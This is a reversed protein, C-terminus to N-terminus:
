LKDERAMSLARDYAASKDFVSTQLASWGGLDAVTFLDPVAPFRNAVDTAVSAVVPRLGYDAFAAQAKPTWMFDVFARALERNGHRDVYGDVLAAPNEISITSKPIVYEYDQGKSRGVLMENEYTIIADGVGREFNLLSERAGRDLIKVNRLIAGLLAQAAAPDDAKAKTKGRLAAGYVAAVNWMAGGSTRVDPTLVELGPRALDDWERIQKPNGKRVGIVVISRTIMGRHEGAKWDHKILGAESLKQIDPELSLAAVDAEFGGVIARAQAGSGLYSEKFEVKQGSHTEAWHKAFAPLIAKGYAERPTTYAGLTLTVPKAEAPGHATSQAPQEGCGLLATVLWLTASALTASLRSSVHTTM